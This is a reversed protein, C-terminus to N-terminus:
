SEAESPLHISVPENYDYFQVEVNAVMDMGNATGTDEPALHLNLHAVGKVLLYTDKAIWQTVSSGKIVEKPNTVSSMEGMWSQTMATWLHDLDPTLELVYCDVGDVNDDGQMKRQSGELLELQQGLAEQQDWYSSPTGKKAWSWEQSSSAMGTYLYDGVVFVRTHTTETARGTAALSVTMDMEIQRNTKDVVASTDVSVTLEQMLIGEQGYMYEWSSLELRYTAVGAQASLMDAVVEDADMGVNSTEGGCSAATLGILVLVSMFIGAMKRMDGEEDIALCLHQASRSRGRM